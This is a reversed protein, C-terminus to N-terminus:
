VQDETLPELEGYYVVYCLCGELVEESHISGAASRCLEGPGYSGREDRLRGYLVYINEVGKHRHRPNRAGARGLALCGRVGREADETVVALRIGPVADFWEYRALDVPLSPAEALDLLEQRLRPDLASEPAAARGLLRELSRLEDDSM